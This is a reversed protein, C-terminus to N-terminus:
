GLVPHIGYFFGDPDFSNPDFAYPSFGGGQRLSPTFQTQGIFGRARDGNDFATISLRLDNVQVGAPLPQVELAVLYGDPDFQNPDTVM